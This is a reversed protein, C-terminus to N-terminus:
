ETAEEDGAGAAAHQGARGAHTEDRGGPSAADHETVTSVAQVGSAAAAASFQQQETQRGTPRPGAALSADVDESSREDCM